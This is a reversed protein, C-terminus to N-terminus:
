VSTRRSSQGSCCPTSVTRFWSTLPAVTRSTSFSSVLLANPMPKPVKGESSVPTNWMRSCETSAPLSFYGTFEGKKCSSLLLIAEKRFAMVKGSLVTYGKAVGLSVSKLFRISTYRFATNQGSAM